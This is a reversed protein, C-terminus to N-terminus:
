CAELGDERRGWEYLTQVIRAGAHGDWFKPRKHRKQHTLQERAHLLIQEKATGALVNTGHSITIPRETNRRLTVCPVGLITTEEQLGGSDTLVLRANATLRLFDLYGLPEICYLGSAGIAGHSLPTFYSDLGFEEIRKRTRPHVPFIIPMEQSLEQLAELIPKLCTSDDVNSPRHLTMVGYDRQSDRRPDKKSKTVKSTGSLGEDHALGLNKLIPSEQSKKQHKLLTDVMTNGVFYVKEEPIGENKLNKAASPETTFLFDSVVDTLVRNVEEPMDRDFSRLGAEVHAIRPRLLNLMTPGPYTIKSAVLSCAITSNVDGVVMVIDPQEDLLISEFRKIIEGTQQAHSSSGVGMDVDPKPIGLEVFFTQSMQADYHQGTHVLRYVIQNKETANHAEIADIIASVKMFNPRAGAVLMLKM